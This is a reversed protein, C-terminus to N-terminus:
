QFLRRNRNFFGFYERYVKKDHKTKKDIDELDIKKMKVLANEIMELTFYDNDCIEFEDISRVENSDNEINNTTDIINYNHNNDFNSADFVIKNTM